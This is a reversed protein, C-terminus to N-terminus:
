TTREWIETKQGKRPKMHLCINQTLLLLCCVVVVFHCSRDNSYLDQAFHKRASPSVKHGWFKLNHLSYFRESKVVITSKVENSNQMIWAWLSLLFTGEVFRAQVPQLAPDTVAFEHIPLIWPNIVLDTSKRRSRDIQLYDM